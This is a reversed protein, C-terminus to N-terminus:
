VSRSSVGVFTGKWEKQQEPNPYIIYQIINFLLPIEQLIKPWARKSARLQTAFISVQGPEWNVRVASVIGVAKQVAPLINWPHKHFWPHWFSKRQNATLKLLHHKWIPVGRLMNPGWHLTHDSVQNSRHFVHTQPGQSQQSVWAMRKLLYHWSGTSTSIAWWKNWFSHFPTLSETILAIKENSMWTTDHESATLLPFGSLAEMMVPEFHWSIEYLWAVELYTAMCLTLRQSRRECLFLEYVAFRLTFAKRYTKPVLSSRRQLGEQYERKFTWASRSSSSGKAARSTDPLSIRHTTIKRQQDGILPFQNSNSLM